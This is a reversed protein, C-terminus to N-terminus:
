GEVPASSSPPQVEEQSDGQDQPAEEESSDDGEPRDSSSGSASDDEQGPVGPPPPLFEEISAGQSLEDPLPIYSTGPTGPLGSGVVDRIAYLYYDGGRSAKHLEYIMFKVPEPDQQGEGLNLVSSPPVYGVKLTIVDGKKSIETVRPTVFGTVVTVPVHYSKIDRDYVYSDEFNGFTQHELKADPGFLRAATVDVDSAPIVLLGIDDYQYVDRNEGLLTAWICTQLLSLQDFNKVEDFPVPDFMVVPLLMKEYRAKQASNDLLSRTFNFSVTVLTILGIICLIIFIGGIPAAYPNRKAMRAAPKSM